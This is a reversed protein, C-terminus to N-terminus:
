CLQQLATAAPTTYRFNISPLALLRNFSLGDLVSSSHNAVDPPKSLNKFDVMVTLETITLGGFSVLVRSTQRPIRMLLLHMLSICLKDSGAIVATAYEYIDPNRCLM